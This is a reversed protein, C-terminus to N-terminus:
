FLSIKFPTECSLFFHMESDWSTEAQHLSCHKLIYKTVQKQNSKFSPFTFSFHFIFM